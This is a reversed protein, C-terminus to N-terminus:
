SKGKAIKLGYDAMAKVLVAKSEDSLPVLPLRVDPFCLGLLGMATKIPVPNTEVFLAKILPFLKLHLRQAKAIDGKHWSTCLQAMEQPVINAAVSIIGKGGVSLIPLTLADDGSLVDFKKGLASIIESSQDLNGSSEKVGVVAPCEKALRIITAPLMNTGTRSPINYVVAPLSVEQVVTRFHALLGEQTPRNYYPVVLLVADAGAKKAFRTLRVTEATSNSGAGAMVAIRKKAAKIVIEIVEEHEEHSMTASEGTTGAPVLANTGREIHFEVLEELKSRDIKGDKWPTVLAVCSGSFM